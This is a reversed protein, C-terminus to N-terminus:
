LLGYRRLVEKAPETYDPDEIRDLNIDPNLVILPNKSTNKGHTDELADYGQELVRSVFRKGTATQAAINRSINVPLDDTPKLDNLFQNAYDTDIVSAEKFKTNLLMKAYEEGQKVSSMVKLDKTTQYTQVFTARNMRAYGTGIYSEWKDHDEQNISVYKKNDYTPDQRSLSVRKVISGKPLILTGDKNQYRRVGWKMGKVGYHCLENADHIFGADIAWREGIYAYRNLEDYYVLHKDKMATM